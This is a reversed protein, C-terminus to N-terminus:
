KIDTFSQTGYFSHRFTAGLRVDWATTPPEQSCHSPQETRQLRVIVQFHDVREPGGLLQAPLHRPRYKPRRRVTAAPASM